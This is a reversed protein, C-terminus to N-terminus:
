LSKMVLEPCFSNSHLAKVILIKNDGAVQAPLLCARNIKSRQKIHTAGNQQLHYRLIAAGHNISCQLQLAM